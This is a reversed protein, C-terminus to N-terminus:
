HKENYPFFANIKYLNLTHVCTQNEEGELGVPLHYMGVRQWTMHNTRVLQSNLSLPM